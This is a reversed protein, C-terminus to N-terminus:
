NAQQAYTIATQNVTVSIESQARGIMQDLLDDAVNGDAARAVGEALSTADGLPANIATVKFVLRGDSDATPTVAVGDPGVGFVADIGQANFDGDNATRSLGFKQELPYGTEDTIAQLDSGDELLAAIRNAEDDLQSAQQAALYNETVADRAEDFTRDRDAIVDVVEYWLFGSRGATLPPTEELIDAQFAQALLDDLEVPGDYQSGDPLRGQRDIAEITVMELDQAQAAETMTNGGARADEYGDHVSLLVDNAEILALETRLEEEIEEFPQVSEPTISTVRLLVPGFAGDVVPSIDDTSELAFAAEAIAPDPLADKSLDGLTVDAETRGLGEIVTAFSEGALIRERAQEAATQDPFVLQQIVRTEPTGYNSKTAEYEERVTSDAVAAPEAIEEATLRVYRIQRYEPARYQASNDNFYAELDADSPTEIEPLASSTIRLFSVDRSEGQHKFLAAKLVDPAQLGDVTAQVLQQRIAVDELSTVYQEETLGVQRLVQRLNDRNFNAGGGWNQADEAIVQALGEKTLGLRMSRAQEDLVAGAALQSLVRSDLGFLRAQERTLQQGFQSRLQQFGRNYALRYDDVSVTTDGATLVTNGGVGSTIQGSIGWVAFSAVLLILLVKAVWTKASSRLAGLM